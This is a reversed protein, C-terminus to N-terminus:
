CGNCIINKTKHIIHPDSVCTRTWAKHQEMSPQARSPQQGRPGGKGGMRQSGQCPCHPTHDLSTRYRWHGCVLWPALQVSIDLWLCAQLHSEFDVNLIALPLIGHSEERFGRSLPSQGRKQGWHHRGHLRVRGHTEQPNPPHHSQQSPAGPHCCPQRLACPCKPCPTLSHRQVFVIKPIVKPLSLHYHSSSPLTKSMVTPYRHSYDRHTHGGMLSPRKKKPASGPPCHATSTEWLREGGHLVAQHSPAASALVAGSIERLLLLHGEAAPIFNKQLMGTVPVPGTDRTM